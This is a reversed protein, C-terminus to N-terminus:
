LALTQSTTPLSKVLYGNTWDSSNGSAGTGAATAAHTDASNDSWILKHSATVANAIIQAITGTLYDAGSPATDAVMYTSISEGSTAGAVTAKVEYTKTTGAAVVRETTFQIVVGCDTTCIEDDGDLDTTGATNTVEYLSADLVSGNEYVTVTDAQTFSGSFSSILSVQRLSVDANSAATVSFKYITNLGNVLTTSSAVTAITPQTKRITQVSGTIGGIVGLQFSTLTFTGGGSSTVTEGAVFTGSIARVTVTGAGYTGSGVVVIIATAGSTGGTLTEGAALTATSVAGTVLAGTVVTLATPTFTVTTGDPNTATITNSTNLATNTTALTDITITGANYTGTGVTVVRATALSTAQALTAGVVLSTGTVLTITGTALKATTMNDSISLHGAGVDSDVLAAGSFTGIVKIDDTYTDNVDTTQPVVVAMKPKDGSNAGTTGSGEVDINVKITVVNDNAVTLLGADNACRLRSLSDLAGSCFLTGNKDFLRVSTVSRSATSTLNQVTLRTVNFGENISSFKVRTVSNDTTNATIISSVPTDGDAQITLSGSAIPTVIITNANSTMTAAASVTAGQQLHYSSASWSTSTANVTNSDKDQATINATTAASTGDGLLDILIENTGSGYPLNNSLLVKVMVTKTTGAPVTWNLNTFNMDGSSDPSQAVGIQTSGDWLTASTIMDQVYHTATDTVGAESAAFTTASANISMMGRVKIQSVKVDSASGATFNIGAANVTSGKTVTQSSPSSAMGITLGSARVTQANGALASAPVIDTVAVDTNSDLNRIDGLVRSAITATLSKASLASPATSLIDCTLALNMTQGAAIEFRDTFVYGFHINDGTASTTYTSDDYNTWSSLDVQNTVTSGTDTNKVKCDTIYAISSAIAASAAIRMRLDRVEVHNVSTIAFKALTADNAGVSIDGTSPGNFAFTIQGGRVTLNNGANSLASTFGNTVSVGSGYTNGTAYLDYTQDIYFHITDTDARNGSGIDGMVSFTRTIGKGLVYPVAFIFTTTSGSIIPNQAVVTGGTSIKLNTLNTLQAAGSNTLVLRRVSIDETSGATLKFNALEVGTQGLKPDSSTSGAATTVSGSVSGAITFANGAVPFTGGVTTGAVVDTATVLAFSHANGVTACNTTCTPAGTGLLDGVLTLAKTGSIAVNLNNFAVQNTTSSVSRGTTLRTDGDYLYVNAWDSAIGAGQRTFTLGTVTGAGAINVKLLNIGQANRTVTAGASNDSALTINLAGAGSLGKDANISPSMTQENAVTYDSASSIQSGVTYNTFFADSIDDIKKNWDSGYLAVAAAETAVWRLVGGHAVAYVKPDSQIKVMKVGPKYTVNGGITVSALDTDSITKVTSFDAYWTKYAKDSTFVYRKMDSGIYYVAPLSGKVLDGSSVSAAAAVPAFAFSAAVSWAITTAAVATTFARKFANHM